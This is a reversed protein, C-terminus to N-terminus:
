QGMARLAVLTPLGFMAFLGAAFMFTEGKNRHPKLAERLGLLGGGFFVLSFVIVAFLETPTM